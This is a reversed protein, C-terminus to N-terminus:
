KKGYPFPWVIPTIFVILWEEWEKRQAGSQIKRERGEPKKLQCFNKLPHVQEHAM